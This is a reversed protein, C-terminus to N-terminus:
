LLRIGDIPDLAAAVVREGEDWRLLRNRRGELQLLLCAAEELSPSLQFDRAIWGFWQRLRRQHQQTLRASALRNADKRTREKKEREKVRRRMEKACTFDNRTTAATSAVRSSTSQLRRRIARVGKGGDDSANNSTEEENTDSTKSDRLLLCVSLSASLLLSPPLSLSLSTSFSLSPIYNTTENTSPNNIAPQQQQQQQRRRTCRCVAARTCGRPNWTALSCALTRQTSHHLRRLTEWAKRTRPSLTGRVDERTAEREKDRVRTRWIEHVGIVIFGRRRGACSTAASTNLSPINAAALQTEERM